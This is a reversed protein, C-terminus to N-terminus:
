LFPISYKNLREYIPYPVDCIKTMRLTLTKPLPAAFGWGAKNPTGGPVLLKKSYLADSSHLVSLMWHLTQNVNVTYSFTVHCSMNVDSLKSKGTISFQEPDEVSIQCYCNILNTSSISKM